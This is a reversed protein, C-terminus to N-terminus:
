DNDVIVDVLKDLSDFLEVPLHQKIDGPSRNGTRMM